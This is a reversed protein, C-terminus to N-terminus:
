EDPLGFYKRQWYEPRRYPAGNQPLFNSIIGRLVATAKSAAASLSLKEGAIKIKDEDISAGHAIMSRLGYLDRAVRYAHEREEPVQFITSYNLSFRFSLEGRRDEKALGALLIAEMGIVADVIRDEPRTRNQADALRSCAMEMAREKCGFILKAHEALPAFDTEGLSYSGFQVYKDGLGVSFLGLPCFKTPRFHIYDYGVCGEKYTRLCLVAKNLIERATESMTEGPPHVQGLLKPQEFEGEIVFEYIGSIQPRVFGLTGLPGGHYRSVEDENLWRIALSNPLLFSDGHMKFNILQAQFQIRVVSSDVFDSFEQVIANVETDSIEFTTRKRWITHLASTVISLRNKAWNQLSGRFGIQGCHDPHREAFSSDFAKAAEEIQPKAVRFVHHLNPRLETEGHWTAGEARRWVQYQEMVQGVIPQLIPLCTTIAQKLLVKPEEHM